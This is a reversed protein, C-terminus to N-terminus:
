NVEEFVSTLAQLLKGAANKLRTHEEGETGSVVELMASFAEQTQEAYVGFRQASGSAVAALKEELARIALAVACYEDGSRCDDTCFHEVPFECCIRKKLTEIADKYTM